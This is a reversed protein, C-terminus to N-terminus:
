RAYQKNYEQRLKLNIQILKEDLTKIEPNRGINEKESERILKSRNTAVERQLNHLRIIETNM